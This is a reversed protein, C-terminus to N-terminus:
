PPPIPPPPHGPPATLRYSPARRTRRIEVREDMEGVNRTHDPSGRSAAENHRGEQGRGPRGDARLHRLPPRHCRGREPEAEVERAVPADLVLHRDVRAPLPFGEGRTWDGP